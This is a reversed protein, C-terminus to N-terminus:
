VFVLDSVLAQCYQRCTKQSNKKDYKGSLTELISSDCLVGFTMTYMYVVLLLLCLTCYKRRFSTLHYLPEPNDGDENTEEDGDRDEEDTVGESQELHSPLQEMDLGSGIRWGTQQIGLIPLVLVHSDISDLDM